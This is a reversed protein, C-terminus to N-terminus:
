EVRAVDVIHLFNLGAVFDRRKRCEEALGRWGGRRRNIEDYGQRRVFLSSTVQIKLM